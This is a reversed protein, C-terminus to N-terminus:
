ATIDVFGSSGIIIDDVWSMFDDWWDFILNGNKMINGKIIFVKMGSKM